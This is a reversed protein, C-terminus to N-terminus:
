NTISKEGKKIMLIKENDINKMKMFRKMFRKILKLKKEALYKRITLLSQM